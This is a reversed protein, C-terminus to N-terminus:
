QHKTTEEPSINSLNWHSLRPVHNGLEYHIFDIDDLWIKNKLTTPSILTELLLKKAILAPM